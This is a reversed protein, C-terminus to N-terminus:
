NSQEFPPLCPLKLSISIVAFADHRISLDSHLLFDGAQHQGTGVAAAAFGGDGAGNQLRQCRPTQPYPSRM